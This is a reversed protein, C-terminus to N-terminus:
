GGLEDGVARRIVDALTPGIRLPRGARSTWFGVLRKTGAGMYEGEPRSLLLRKGSAHDVQSSAEPIASDHSRYGTLAPGSCRLTRCDAVDPDILRECRRIASLFVVFMSYQVLLEAVGGCLSRLVLAIVTVEKGV